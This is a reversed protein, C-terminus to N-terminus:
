VGQMNHEEIKWVQVVRTSPMNDEHTVHQLASVQMWLHMNHKPEAINAQQCQVKKDAMYAHMLVQSHM